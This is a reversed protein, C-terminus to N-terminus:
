EGTGEDFNVEDPNGEDFKGAEAGWAAWGTRSERSFMELKTGPCLSEVFAIFEAPKRSHQGRKARLITTQNTLTTLPRGKVAMLCHETQGRLWDGTGMHEKDWTLMTKYTFGWAELCDFASRLFANTAWLWLVCDEEALSAVPLTLIAPLAMDPYPNRARHTLDNARNDYAWPPDCTIVHFKGTPLPVPRSNLEEALASKKAHAIEKGADALSKEGSLMQAFLEPSQEKIKEAKDVSKGSVGVKAAAQDRAKPASPKPKEAKLAAETKRTSERAETPSAETEEPVSTSINGCTSEVKELDTRQGQKVVLQIEEKYGVAICSKQTVSLHRRHFNLSHVLSVLDGCKDWEIFRPAVLIGQEALDGVARWRHRGDLLSGDPHLLIPQRLGHTKIDQMLAQYEDNAM